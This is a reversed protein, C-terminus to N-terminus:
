TALSLYPTLQEKLYDALAPPVPSNEDEIDALGHRNLLDYPLRLVQYDKDQLRRTQFATFGDVCQRRTGKNLFHSPGDVQIVLGKKGCANIFFDASSATSAVFQEEKLLTHPRMEQLVKSLAVGTKQQFRSATHSNGQQLPTLLDPLFTLHIGQTELYDSANYLANFHMIQMMQQDMISQLTSAFCNALDGPVPIELVCAAYLANSLEQAKFHHMTRQIETWLQGLWDKPPPMILIAASHLTSSCHKAEFYHLKKRSEQWFDEMWGTPPQLGLTSAGYLINSFEQAKFCFLKKRSEQWFDEIWDVPPQWGLKAIAYLMNSFEQAKFLRLKHQSMPWFHDKWDIHAKLSLKAAAYLTNSFEQPKFDNLKHQSNQWFAREWAEDPTISLNMCGYLLNAFGRANCLNDQMQQQAVQMMRLVFSKHAKIAHCRNPDNQAFRSLM